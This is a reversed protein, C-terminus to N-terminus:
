KEAEKPMMRLLADAAVFATERDNIHSDLEIVAAASNLSSRLEEAFANRGSRNEIAGGDRDETSFGGMPLVIACEGESGNLSCAIIRAADAMEDDKLAVHTFAPSHRYHPRGLDDGGLAEIAGKTFFNIGGPLLVRPSGAHGALRDSLLSSGTEYLLRTVEHTACDMMGSFLGRRAWKSFAAGGYGNAHFTATEHGASELREVVSDVIPAVVGLATIGIASRDRIEDREVDKALASAMAAASSLSNRIAPGTGVLDAITPVLVIGNLAAFERLDSALTTVLLKPTELPLTMMATAAVQAGTGGGMGVFVKADRAAARGVALSAKESAERMANVKEEGSLLKGGSELSTDLVECALGFRRLRNVLFETERRKTDLTALVVALPSESM